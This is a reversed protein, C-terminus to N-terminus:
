RELHRSESVVGDDALIEDVSVAEGIVYAEIFEAETM